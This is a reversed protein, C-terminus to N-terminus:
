ATPPATGAARGKARACASGPAQGTCRQRNRWVEIKMGWRRAQGCTPPYSTIPPRPEWQRDHTQQHSVGGGGKWALVGTQTQMSGCRGRWSLPARARMEGYRKGSVRIGEAQLNKTPRGDVKSMGTWTGDSERTCEVSDDGGDCAGTRWRPRSARRSTANHGIRQPCSDEHHPGLGERRAGDGDQAMATAPAM